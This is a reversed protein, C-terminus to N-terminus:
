RYLRQFLCQLTQSLEVSEEHTLPAYEDEIELLASRIKDALRTRTQKTSADNAAQQFDRFLCNCDASVRSTQVDALEIVREM